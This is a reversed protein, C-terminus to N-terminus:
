CHVPRIILYQDVSTRMELLRQTQDLTNGKSTLIANVILEPQAYIYMYTFGPQSNRLKNWVNIHITPIPESNSLLIVFLYSWDIWKDILRDVLWDISWEISLYGHQRKTLWRCEFFILFNRDNLLQERFYSTSEEAYITDCHRTNKNEEIAM